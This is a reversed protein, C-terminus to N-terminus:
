SSLLADGRVLRTADAPIPKYTDSAFPVHGEPWCSRLRCQLRQLAPAPPPNVRHVFVEMYACAESLEWVEEVLYRPVYGVRIDDPKAFLCLANPDVPNDAEHRIELAEGAVLRLVRAREASTLYRYGHMLFCTVYCDQERDYVPLPFMELSDTARVGGSRALIAMPHANERTLGIQAIYADFDPRIPRMVRNSFFPFPEDSRYVGHLDAFALFPRFGSKAAQQAGRIYVFEYRDGVPGAECTLRAVPTYARSVPDQWAVFIARPRDTM